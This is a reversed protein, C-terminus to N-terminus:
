SSQMSCGSFVSRLLPYKGMDCASDNHDDNQVNEVWVGHGNEMAYTAKEAVSLQDDYGLWLGDKFYSPVHRKEDRHVKNQDFILKCIQGFSILGESQSTYLPKGVHVIKMRDSYHTKNEVHVYVGYFAIGLNLKEAPMGNKKWLQLSSAVSSGDGYLPSHHSIHSNWSGFFRFGVINMMDVYRAIKSVEYYGVQFPDGIVSLLLRSRGTEISNNQFAESAEKLFATLHNKEETVGDKNPYWWDIHLGDFKHKRLYTIANSIFENRSDERAVIAAFPKPASWPVPVSLLIKLDKNRKKLDATKAYLGRVRDKSLENSFMNTLNNGVIGAAYYIAHTCYDKPFEKTIFNKPVDLNDIGCVIRTCRKEEQAENSIILSFFVVFLM